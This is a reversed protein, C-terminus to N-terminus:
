IRLDLYTLPMPMTVKFFPSINLTLYEIGFLVLMRLEYGALM